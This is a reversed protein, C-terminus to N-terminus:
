EAESFAQKSTRYVRLLIVVSIVALVGVISFSVDFTKPGGWVKLLVCQLVYLPLLMCVEVKKGPLVQSIGWCLLSLIVLRCVYTAYEVAVAYWYSYFWAAAFLDAVAYFAFLLTLVVALWRAIKVSKVYEGFFRCGKMILFSGVLGTIPMLKIVMLPGAFAVSLLLGWLLMYSSGIAAPVDDPEFYRYPLLGKNIGVAKSIMFERNPYKHELM